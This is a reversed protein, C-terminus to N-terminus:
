SKTETKSVVIGNQMREFKVQTEKGSCKIEADRILLKTDIFSSFYTNKDDRAFYVGYQSIKISKCAGSVIIIQQTGLPSTELANVVGSIREAELRSSTRVSEDVGGFIVSMLWWVIFGLVLLIILTWLLFGKM